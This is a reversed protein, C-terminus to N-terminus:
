GNTEIYSVLDGVTKIRDAETESISKGFEKELALLLDVSDLSDAGLDDIISADRSVKEPRVKLKEVVLDRVRKELDDSM